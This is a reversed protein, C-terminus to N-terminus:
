RFNQAITIAFQPAISGEVLREPMPVWGGANTIFSPTSCPEYGLHCPTIGARARKARKAPVVYDEDNRPM